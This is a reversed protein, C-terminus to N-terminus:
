TQEVPAPKTDPAGAVDSRRNFYANMALLLLMALGWEVGVALLAPMAGAPFTVAGFSLGAWYAAPGGVAGFAAALLPRRQLWGLSANLTTAFNIWMFAMWITSPGGLEAYAPFDLVGLLVLASDLLWGLVGVAVFLPLDRRPARFLAVHLAVLLTVVIPGAYPWGWAAGLVCAFWGFQFAAFNIIKKTMDTRASANM